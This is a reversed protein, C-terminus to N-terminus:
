NTPDNLKEKRRQRGIWDCLFLGAAGINVCVESLPPHTYGTFPGLLIALAGAGMVSYFFRRGHHSRRDMLNCEVATRALLIVGAILNIILLPNMM